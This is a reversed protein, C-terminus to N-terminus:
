SNRRKASAGARHAPCLLNALRFSDTACVNRGRQDRTRGTPAPRDTRAPGPHNRSFNERPAGARALQDADGGGRAQRCQGGAELVDPHFRRKTARLFFSSAVHTRATPRRSDARVGTLFGPQTWLATWLATSDPAMADQIPMSIPWIYEPLRQKAQAGARARPDAGLVAPLFPFAAAAAGQRWAGRRRTVTTPMARRPPM